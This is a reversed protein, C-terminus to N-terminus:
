LIPIDLKQNNSLDTSNLNNVQKIGEIIDRIDKNKYYENQTQEEKAISWLTDGASTYITKYSIKTNSLSTHSFFMIGTLVTTLMIINRIVKRKNVIKLKM